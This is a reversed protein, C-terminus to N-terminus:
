RQGTAWLNFSWEFYGFRVKEASFGATGFYAGLVQASYHYVHERIEETSVLGVRAMARLVNASWLSPTTIIVLGSPMLIRHVDGFLGVLRSPNLHEVVALLTVVSFFKDEFPLVIETNLDLRHLRIELPSAAPKLQDIAFKEKFSTHALFYPYSGCGIDLIRGRRLENPILRDAQRARWQALQAEL